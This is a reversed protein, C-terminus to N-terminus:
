GVPSTRWRGLMAAAVAVAVPGAHETRLVTAGLGVPSWGSAAAGEVEVPSWGGEPGVAIIVVDPATAGGDLVDPLPSAGPVALLRLTRSGPMVEPVAALGDVPSVVETLHSGRSQELAAGAVARWREALAAAARQDPRGQTREAIVPVILDVGLECAVRVADEARRGKSLAQVLVLMPPSAAVERVSSTVRAGEPVLEGSALRGSGDTLSLPADDRLRLVRRLHHLTAPDVTVTAGPAIGELSAAVLVHPALSV